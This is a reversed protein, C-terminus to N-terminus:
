ADRSTDVNHMGIPFNQVKFGWNKPKVRYSDETVDEAIRLIGQGARNLKLDGGGDAMAVRNNTIESKNM